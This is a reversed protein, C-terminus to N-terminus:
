EADEACGEGQGRGERQHDRDDRDADVTRLRRDLDHGFAEVVNRIWRATALRAVPAGEGQRSQHERQDGENQKRRERDHDDRARQRGAFLRM